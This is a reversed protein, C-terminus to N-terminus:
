NINVIAGKVALPGGAEINGVGDAKVQVVGGQVQMQAAGKLQAQVQAEVKVNM